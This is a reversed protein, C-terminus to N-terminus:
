HVEGSLHRHVSNLIADMGAVKPIFGVLNFHNLRNTRRLDVLRIPNSSCYLVKTPKAQSWVEQADPDIDILHDANELTSVGDSDRLSWDIVVCEFANDALINAGELPEHVIQAVVDGKEELRAKLLGAFLKDDDIILVKQRFDLKASLRHPLITPVTSYDANSNLM